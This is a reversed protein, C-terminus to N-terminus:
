REIILADGEIRPQDDVLKLQPRIEPKDFEIIWAPAKHNNAVEVCLPEAEELTGATIPHAQVRVGKLPHRYLYLICYM